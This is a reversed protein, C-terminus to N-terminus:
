DHDIVVGYGVLVADHLFWSMRIFITSVSNACNLYLSSNLSVTIVILTILVPLTESLRCRAIDLVHLTVTHVHMRDRRLILM